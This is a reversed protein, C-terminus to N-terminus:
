WCLAAISLDISSPTTVSSVKLVDVNHRLDQLEKMREQIVQQVEAQTVVLM